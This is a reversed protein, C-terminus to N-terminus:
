GQGIVPQLAVAHHPDRIIAVRMQLARVFQDGLVFPPQRQGLAAMNGDAGPPAELVRLVLSPPYPRSGPLLAIFCRPLSLLDGSVTSSTAPLPRSCRRARSVLPAAM